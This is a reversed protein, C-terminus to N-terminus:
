SRTSEIRTIRSAHNSLIEKIDQAIADFKGELKKQGEKLFRIDIKILASEERQRGLGDSIVNVTKKVSSLDESFVRFESRLGEILVGVQTGTFADDRHPQNTM